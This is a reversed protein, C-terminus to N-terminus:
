LDEKRWHPDLLTRLAQRARHLRTKVVGQSVGLMRATEETDMSEIDRCMLVIRYTAPLQEICRRVLDRTEDRGLLTGPTDKWPVPPVLQHEGEGFHPLMDEISREPHRRRRRLRILAANVIIRHLWTGLEARGEFDGINKFASLFGDQLADRADEENGVIRRAVALLRTTYTRVCEEFAGDDGARMRKLLSAEHTIM